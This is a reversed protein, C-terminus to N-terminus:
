NGAHSEKTDAQALKPMTVLARAIALDRSTQAVDEGLMAALKRMSFGISEGKLREQRSQGQKGRVGHISQMLAYLRQKGQVEEQWTLEKRRINEEIEIAQRRLPDTALDERWIFGLRGDGHHLANWKTDKRILPGHVRIERERLLKIATLRRGGAVLVISGNEASLVIPEILGYEEISEAMAVIQGMDRRLRNDTKIDTILVTDPRQQQQMTAKTEQKLL